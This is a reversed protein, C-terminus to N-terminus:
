AYPHVATDPDAEGALTALAGIFGRKGRISELDVDTEGAVKEAEELEVMRSKVARTYRALAPHVCLSGYVAAAAEDSYCGRDVEQLLFHVFEGEVGQGIGFTVATACGNTTRYPNQPFLQVVTHGLYIGLGEEQTRWAVENMLSWTAGKEADDTDDVGVVVKYLRPLVLRARGIKAGGGISEIVVGEVGDAMGRCLTAAVGGGALGAYTIEVHDDFVNVREIGAGALGPILDLDDVGVRCHLINRPGERRASTVLCSTRPFHYVEWASGGMCVGRAHFEHLEVEEGLGDTLAYIRDYPTIYPLDKFKSRIEGPKLIEDGGVM